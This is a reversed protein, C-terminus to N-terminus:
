LDPCWNQLLRRVRRRLRLLDQWSDVTGAAQSPPWLGMAKLREFQHPQVRAAAANNCLVLRHELSRLTEFATYGERVPLDQSEALRELVVPLARRVSGVRLLPDNGGEVLVYGQVLFELDALGGAGLKIDVLDSREETREREMRQRLHCLRQWVASPARQQYCIKHAEEEIWTALELNGAVCRMRLLAQIEWIDAQKRYYDRWARRTVILPGYNGTPRLRADVEYGPGEHLPTSLMRMFRQILSIIAAPIQDETQGRPPDYVFALDVDSLYGMERSGLKGLALVALPTHTDFGRSEAVRRYTHTIVFDALSSLENELQGHNITGQLDAMALQLLRENKLRRIWELSEEYDSHRNLLGLSTEQWSRANTYRGALTAVGEVLAPHHTLLDALLESQALGGIFDPLWASATHFVKVLGPRKRVQSFYRDLRILVKESIARDHTSGFKVLVDVVTKHLFEPFIGTNKQIGALLDPPCHELLAAEGDVETARKAAEPESSRFLATFHQHVTRCCVELKDIFQGEEADFGLASELRRRAEDSRPIKQTQRNQDLQVWHEVRRLFVYAEKLQQVTEGPLLGLGYLRDLCNLTNSEDLQPHRGGYILQLSQVLFEIERIGGVGLKVDFQQWGRGPQVASALIKDRMDRLEDLAQFDLFRRFVFPRVEQIFASGLHRDGAVPRAKLLMQREWPQGRHLYHDVAAAVSPALPGDKGLPRLRHDVEFVRDGEVKDALLRTLSQCFRNLLVLYDSPDDGGGNKGAHLFLIDIDSVYNLEQGGLKGLGMVVLAYDERIRRWADPRTSGFWWEPHKNLMNLGVQLAVAALDSLQSTTEALNARGLLDRGGIRLFHRQKFERFCLQLNTFSSTKEATDQLDQYIETLPYRRYLNKSGVLWDVYDPRRRLLTALYQSSSGIREIENMNHENRYFGQSCCNPHRKLVGIPSM